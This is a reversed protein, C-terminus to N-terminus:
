LLVSPVSYSMGDMRRGKVQLRITLNKRGKKNLNEVVYTFNNCRKRGELCECGNSNSLPYKRM